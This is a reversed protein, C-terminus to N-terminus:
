QEVPQNAEDAENEPYEQHDLRILALLEAHRDRGVDGFLNEAFRLCNRTAPWENPKTELNLKTTDRVQGEGVCRGPRRKGEASARRLIFKQCKGCM